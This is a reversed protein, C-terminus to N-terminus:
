GHTDSSGATQRAPPTRAPRHYPPLDKIRERFAALERALRKGHTVGAWYRGIRERPVRERLYPDRTGALRQETWQNGLRNHCDGLICGTLFVGEVHHRTILFDIFSPPLMGICQLEMTAVGPDELRQLDPGNKCGFVLVRADGTLGAAAEIVKDRLFQMNLDPLDIGPVLESTRRFPTATPCAGV